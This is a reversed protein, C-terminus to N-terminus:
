SGLDYIELVVGGRDFGKSKRLLALRNGGTKWTSPRGQGDLRLVRTAVNTKRDVIFLDLEDPDAKKRQLAPPNTPDVTASVAVRDGDLLQFAISELAYMYLPRALTLEKQTLGDTFLLKHHDESLHVFAAQNSHKKHEIILQAFGLVDEIEKEDFLKGTWPDLRAFRDPRRMDKAKDFAGAQQVAAAAFGDKWWLIKFAGAPHPVRGEADERWSKKGLAKWSERHVASLTHEVGKKETRTYSVVAPKGDLTALAIDDAPGLRERGPGKPSYVQASVTEKDGDKAVVLVREPSLWHIAVAHASVGPIVVDPKWAPIMALHLKAAEAGDTTIYAVAKGDDRLAFPDDIFGSADTKVQWIPAPPAALAPAALCLLAALTTRM